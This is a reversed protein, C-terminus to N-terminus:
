WSMAESISETEIRYNKEDSSARDLPIEIFIYSNGSILLM